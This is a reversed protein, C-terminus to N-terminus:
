PGLLQRDEVSVGMDMDLELAPDPDPPTPFPGVSDLFGALDDYGTGVLLDITEKTDSSCPGEDLQGNVLELYASADIQDRQACHIM